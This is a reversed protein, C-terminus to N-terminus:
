LWSESYSQEYGGGGGASWPAIMATAMSPPKAERPSAYWTTAQRRLLPAPAMAFGVKSGEVELTSFGRAGESMSSASDELLFASPSSAM